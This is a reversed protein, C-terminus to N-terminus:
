RDGDEHDSDHNGEHDGRHHEQHAGEGGEEHAAMAGLGGGLAAALLGVAVLQTAHHRVFRGFRGPTRPSVVPEAAPPAVEPENDPAPKDPHEQQSM